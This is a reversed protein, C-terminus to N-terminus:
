LKAEAECLAVDQYPSQSLVRGQLDLVIYRDGNGFPRDHPMWDRFRYDFLLARQGRSSQAGMALVPWTKDGHKMDVQGRHTSITWQQLRTSLSYLSM